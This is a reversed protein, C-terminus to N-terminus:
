NLSQKFFAVWIWKTVSLSPKIQLYFTAEQLSKQTNTDDVKIYLFLFVM